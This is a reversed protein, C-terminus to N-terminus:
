KPKTFVLLFSDRSQKSQKALFLFILERSQRSQRQLFLYFYKEVKGVKVQYFYTFILRMIKEVWLSFTSSNFKVFNAVFNTFFNDLVYVSLPRGYVIDDWLHRNKVEEGRKTMKKSLLILLKQGGEGQSSM